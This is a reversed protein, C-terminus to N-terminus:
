VTLLDGYQRVVQPLNMDALSSVRARLRVVVRIQPDDQPGIRQVRAECEGKAVAEDIYWAYIAPVYGLKERSPSLIRVANRDKPNDPELELRLQIGEQLEGMVKEGDYYRWGAIPFTVLWEGADDGKDMPELFEFTDAPLRGGTLRLYELDQEPSLDFREYEGEFTPLRRKFIPFLGSASYDSAPDLFPALLTFGENRAEDLGRPSSGKSYRFHYGSADRRLTGIVYRARTVRHKWVLLLEITELGVEIGRERVLRFFTDPHRRITRLLLDVAQSQNVASTEYKAFAKAGGGIILAMQRQTVGLSQRIARIEEPMLLGDVERRWRRLAPEVEHAAKDDVFSEDCEPCHFRELPLALRRGKYEFKEPHAVLQLLGRKCLPCKQGVEYPRRSAAGREGNM